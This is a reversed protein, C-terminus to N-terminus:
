NIEFKDSQITPIEFVNKPMKFHLYLFNIDHNKPYIKKINM